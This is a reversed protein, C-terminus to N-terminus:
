EKADAKSFGVVPVNAWRNWAKLFATWVFTCACLLSRQLRESSWCGVPPGPHGQLRKCQHETVADSLATAADFLQHSSRCCMDCWSVSKCSPLAAHTYM